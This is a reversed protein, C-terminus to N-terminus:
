EYLAFMTMALSPFNVRTYPVDADTCTTPAMMVNILSARSELPLLVIPSDYESEPLLASMNM